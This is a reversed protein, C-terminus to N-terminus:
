GVRGEAILRVEPMVYDYQEMLKRQADILQARRAAFTVFQDGDPALGPVPDDDDRSNAAQLLELRFQQQQLDALFEAVMQAKQQTGLLEPTAEIVNDSM